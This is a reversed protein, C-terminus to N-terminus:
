LVNKKENFVCVIDRVISDSIRDSIQSADCQDINIVVTNFSSSRALQETIDFFIFVYTNIKYKIRLCEQVM